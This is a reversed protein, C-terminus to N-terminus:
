LFLFYDRGRHEKMIASLSPNSFFSYIQGVNELCHPHYIRGRVKQATQLVLVAAAVM